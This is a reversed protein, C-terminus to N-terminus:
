APSEADKPFTGLIGAAVAAMRAARRREALIIAGVEAAAEDLDRNVVIYDYHVHEVAERQAIALRGAVQEPTESGRGRLRSRLTEYDPPLIFIGISGPFRVRVQAAGQVDIDLLLDRGTDLVAAAAAAATGYLRGHVEAWELFEGRAAMARFATEDVFHYERGEQEGPRIPRTTRSVSFELGSTRNLVIKTISSKGAGSPASLM